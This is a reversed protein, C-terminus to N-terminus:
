PYRLREPPAEAVVVMAALCSLYYLRIKPAAEVGAAAEAVVLRM